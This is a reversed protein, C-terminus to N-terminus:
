ILLLQKAQSEHLICGLYFAVESEIVERRKPSQGVQFISGIIPYQEKGRGGGREVLWNVCGGDDYYVCQAQLLQVPTLCIAIDHGESSNKYSFESHM